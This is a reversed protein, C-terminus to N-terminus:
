VTSYDNKRQIREQRRREKEFLDRICRFLGGRISHISFDMYVDYAKSTVTYRVCRGEDPGYEPYSYRGYQYRYPIGSKEADRPCM